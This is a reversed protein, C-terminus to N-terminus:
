STDKAMARHAPPRARRRPVEGGDGGHRRRLQLQFERTLELLAPRRGHEAAAFVADHLLYALVVVPAERNNPPEREIEVKSTAHTDIGQNYNHTTAHITGRHGSTAATSQPGRCM